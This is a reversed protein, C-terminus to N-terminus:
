PDIQECDKISMHGDSTSWKPHMSECTSALQCSSFGKACEAEKKSTVLNM